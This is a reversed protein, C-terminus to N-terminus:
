FFRLGFRFGGPDFGPTKKHGSGRGQLEANRL